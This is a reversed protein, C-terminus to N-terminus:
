ASQVYSVSLAKLIPPLKNLFYLRRTVAIDMSKIAKM